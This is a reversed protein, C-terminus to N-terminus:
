MCLKIKSSWIRSWFHPVLCSWLESHRRQGCWLTKRLHTRVLEFETEEDKAMTVEVFDFVVSLATEPLLRLTEAKGSPLRVRLAIVNGGKGTASAM